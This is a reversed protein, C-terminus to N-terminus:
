RCSLGKRGWYSGSVTSSVKKLISRMPTFCLDHNVLKTVYTQSNPSHTPDLVVSCEPTGFLQTMYSKGGARMQETPEPPSTAAAAPPTPPEQSVEGPSKTTTSSFPISDDDFEFASPHKQGRSLDFFTTNQADPTM